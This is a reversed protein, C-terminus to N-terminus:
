FRYTVSLGVAHSIGRHVSMEYGRGAADTTTMSKGDMLVVGYSAAFELWDTCRWVLGATLIHRDAPPLMTSDQDGSCDMDFVYSGMLTWDEAFDWASAVSFRWTDRWKLRVDRDGSPLEFKLTGLSSWDTWSAAAGIRFTDVIDWNFGFAVSQPLEMECVAPGNNARAAADVAGLLYENAVSGVGTMAHGKVKVDIKSKYVAGVSFFDTVRYRTGIQWGWDLMNNDGKLRNNFTGLVRGDSAALPHSEQEFDFYILRVGAGVSWRDNVAWALNPNFVVGKITTEVSSWNMEWNERYKSGLGYEEGVGFGFALGWPLPTVFSMNPLIFAGPDMGRSSNGDVKSRARPHETVFGFSLEPRVLDVLTAPNNVNASADVGRGILAGGMAHSVASPEYLAMGSGFVGTAFLVLFSLIVSKCLNM